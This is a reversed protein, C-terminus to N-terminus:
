QVHLKASSVASNLSEQTQLTYAAIHINLQYDDAPLSRTLTIKNIAKGPEVLDSEYIPETDQDVSLSFKFYCQNEGPNYLAIQQQTDDANFTINDYGPVKIQMDNGDSTDDPTWSKASSDLKVTSESRGQYQFFFFLAGAIICLFIVSLLIFKSKKAM